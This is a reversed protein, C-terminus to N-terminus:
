QGAVTATTMKTLAEAGYRLHCAITLRNWGPLKSAGHLARDDLDGLANVIDNTRVEVARVLESLRDHSVAVTDSMTPSSGCRQPASHGSGSRAPAPAAALAPAMPLWRRAPM